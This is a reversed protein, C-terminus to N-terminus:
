RLGNQPPLQDAYRIKAIYHKIRHTVCTWGVEMSRCSGLGVTLQTGRQSLLGAAAGCAFQVEISNVSLM